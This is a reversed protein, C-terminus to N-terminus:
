RVELESLIAENILEKDFHYAKLEEDKKSLRIYGFDIDSDQMVTNAYRLLEYSHTTCIIQCNFKQSAIVIFEWIKTLTSWHLGNEFEDILILSNENVAIAVALTFIRVLGEGSLNTDLLINKNTYKISVNSGLLELDSINTDIIQMCEIVLQKSKEKIEKKQKLIKAYLKVARTYEENPSTSLFKVSEEYNLFCETFAPIKIYEEKTFSNVNGLGALM